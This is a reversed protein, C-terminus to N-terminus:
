AGTMSLIMKGHHVGGIKSHLSKFMFVDLVNSNASIAEDRHAFRADSAPTGVSAVANALM